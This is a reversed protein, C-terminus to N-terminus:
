IHVRKGCGSQAAILYTDNSKRWPFLQHTNETHQIWLSSNRETIHNWLTGNMLLLVSDEFSMEQARCWKEKQCLTQYAASYYITATDEARDIAACITFTWLLAFCGVSVVGVCVCVHWFPVCSVGQLCPVASILRELNVVCMSRWTKTIILGRCVRTRACMCVCVCM